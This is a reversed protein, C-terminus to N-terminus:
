RQGKEPRHRYQFGRHRTLCEAVKSSWWDNIRSFYYYKFVHFCFKFHSKIFYFQELIPLPNTNTKTVFCKLASKLRKSCITNAIVMRDIDESKVEGDYKIGM